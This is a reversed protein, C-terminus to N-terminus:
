SEGFPLKATMPAPDGDCLNWRPGIGPIALM